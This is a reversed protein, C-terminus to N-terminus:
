SFFPPFRNNTTNNSGNWIAVTDLLFLHSSIQLLVLFFLRSREIYNKSFLGMNQKMQFVEEHGKAAESMAAWASGFWADGKCGDIERNTKMDKMKEKDRQEKM